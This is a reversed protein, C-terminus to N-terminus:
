VLKRTKWRVSIYAIEDDDDDDDDFARVERLADVEQLLASVNVVHPIRSMNTSVQVIM